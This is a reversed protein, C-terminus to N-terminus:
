LIMRHLGGLQAHIEAFDEMRQIRIELCIRSVFVSVCDKELWLTELCFRIRLVDWSVFVTDQLTTPLIHAPVFQNVPKTPQLQHTITLTPISPVTSFAPCQSPTPLCDNTPRASTLANEPQQTESPHQARKIAFQWAYTEQHSTQTCLITTQTM